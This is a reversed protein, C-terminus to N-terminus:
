AHLPTEEPIARHNTIRHRARRRPRNAAGGSTAEPAPADVADLLPEADLEVESRTALGIFPIGAVGTFFAVLLGDNTNLIALVGMWAFGLVILFLGLLFAASQFLKRLM